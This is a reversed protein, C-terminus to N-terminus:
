NIKPISFIAQLQKTNAPALKMLLNRTKQLFVFPVHALVGIIRSTKVITNVKSKRINQYKLFAENHPYKALLEALVYADEIAQCAGQGMNPTMAHAADGLLCVNNTFWNQLPKVDNISSKYIKNPDTTSILQTIIPNYKKFIQQPDFLVNKNNSQLAYWYVNGAGISVFGFRSTNGWAEYLGGKFESELTFNAVGRWCIQNTNRIITKKFIQKRVLSHIGDAAIVCTAGVRKGNEFFLESKSSNEKINILKYGLKIESKDLNNLLISHLDARHIAKSKIKFEQEFGSLDTKQITELTQNTLTMHSVTAGEKQLLVDLGLKRYVQMANNALIIGAGVNKIHESQEYVCVKFGKQKLAIALTLGGIGAGIIHIM